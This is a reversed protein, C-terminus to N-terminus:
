KKAVLGLPAQASTFRRIINAVLIVMGIVDPSLGILGLFAEHGILWDAAIAATSLLNVWFMKSLYFPKQKVTEAM